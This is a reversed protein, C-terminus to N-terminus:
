RLCISVTSRQYFCYCRLDSKFNPQIHDTAVSTLIIIVYNLRYLQEHYGADDQFQDCRYMCYHYVYFQLHHWMPAVTLIQAQSGHSGTCM